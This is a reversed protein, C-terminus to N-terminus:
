IGLRQQKTLSWLRKLHASLFKPAAIFPRVMEEEWALQQGTWESILKLYRKTLGELIGSCQEVNESEHNAILRACVEVFSEHLRRRNVRLDACRNCSYLAAIKFPDGFSAYTDDIQVVGVKGCFKCKAEKQMECDRNHTGDFKIATLLEMCM